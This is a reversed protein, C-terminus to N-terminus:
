QLRFPILAKAKWELFSVYSMNIDLNKSPLLLNYGIRQLLRYGVWDEAFKTAVLFALACIDTYRM